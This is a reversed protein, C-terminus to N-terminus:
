RFTQRKVIKRNPKQQLMELVRDTIEKYMTEINYLFLKRPYIDAMSNENCGKIGIGLVKVGFHEAIEVAKKTDDIGNLYAPQGDSVVVLIKKMNRFKMLRKTAERINYGDANGACPYLGDVHSINFRKDNFRKLQIDTGFDHQTNFGTLAYHVNPLGDLAYGLVALTKKAESMKNRSSMSGSCDILVEIAWEGGRRFSEGREFITEKYIRGVQAMQKRIESMDIRGTRHRKEFDKQLKIRKRLERNIKKGYEYAEKKNYRYRDEVEDVPPRTTVVETKLDDCGWGGNSSSESKGQPNKLMEKLEELSYQSYDAMGKATVKVHDSVLERNIEEYSVGDQKSQQIEEKKKDIQEKPAGSKILDGLEKLLTPVPGKEQGPQGRNGKLEHWRQFIEKVFSVLEDGNASAINRENFSSVTEEVFKKLCADYNEPFTPNLQAVRDCRMLVQLFPNDTQLLKPRREILTTTKKALPGKLHPFLQTVKYENNCDAFVNFWEYEEKDNSDFPPCFLVHGSEHVVVGKSLEFSDQEDKAYSIKNPMRVARNVPDWHPSVQEHVEVKIEALGSMAGVIRKYIQQLQKQSYM